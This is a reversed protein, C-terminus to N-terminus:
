QIVVAIVVKEKDLKLEFFYQGKSLTYLKLQNYQQMLVTKVVAKGYRDVITLQVGKEPMSEFVINIIGNTPNPSCHIRIGNLGVGNRGKPIYLFPLSVNECGLSNRIRVTYFGLSKATYTRGTAGPILKEDKFWQYSEALSSRLMNSNDQVVVPRKLSDIRVLISDRLTRMCKTVEVTYLTTSLPSAIPNRVTTNNLSGAPTWIYSADPINADLQTITGKCIILDPGLNLLPLSNEIYVRRTKSTMVGNAATITLKVNFTDSKTYTYVPHQLSSTNGDGFDWRWKSISGGCQVSSSDTFNVIVPLCKSNITYGFAPTVPFINKITITDTAVCGSKAVRVWYKGPDSVNVTRSAEGTNWLYTSGPNGADLSILNGYCITTDKGINVSFLSSTIQVTRSKTISNGDIDTITLRVVYNGNSTYIHVPHHLTSFTGDGFDWQWTNIVSVCSVSSDTFKVRVPLCLTEFTYGFAPTLASQMSLIITDSSYCNNKLVRVWYKGPLNTVISQTNEGTSWLYTAGTINANLRIFTSECFTTDAGLSVNIPIGTVVVSSTFVSTLGSVTTVTLTVTYTAPITYAHLPSAISSTAGDGFDWDWQIISNGSCTSSHDTFQVEIPACGPLVSHTYLATIPASFAISITDAGTCTGNVSVMVSYNGPDTITIQETTEGTNWLYSAGPFGASLILSNGECVTTDNGLQVLPITSARVTILHTTSTVSGVNDKIRLTVYYEGTETYQHV